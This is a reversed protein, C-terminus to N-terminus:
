KKKITSPLSNIYDFIIKQESEDLANKIDSYLDRKSIVSYTKSIVVIDGKTGANKIEAIVKEEPVDVINLHGEKTFYSKLNLAIRALEKTPLSLVSEDKKTKKVKPLYKSFDLAGASATQEGSKTGEGKGFLKNIVLFLILIIIGITILNWNIKGASETEM